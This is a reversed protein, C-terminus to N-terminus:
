RRREGLTRRVVEIVHNVDNETMGPYIPLSVAREFAAEASPFQGERYGYSDRYVSHL